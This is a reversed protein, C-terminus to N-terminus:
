ELYATSAAAAGTADIVMLHIFGAGQPKFFLAGGFDVTGVPLGNVFWTYPPSGERAKLALPMPDGTAVGLDIRVDQPPYAIEPHEPAGLDREHPSRFRRLPQPLTATTEDLVGPPAPPLPTTPGIRAFADLLIPAAADVGILDPVPVGDPRGVWVGIVHRGDFGIAWADRYGYSTGTKFAISGPSVHSPGPAGALISAVYWAAREELVRASPSLDLRRETRLSLPLALGGRAIAAHIAVLDTLTVGVGVLGIALGPPSANPVAPAAGARLM